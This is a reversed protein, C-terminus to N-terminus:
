PRYPGGLSGYPYLRPRSAWQGGGKHAGRWFNFVALFPTGDSDRAELYFGEYAWGTRDDGTRRKPDLAHQITPVDLAFAAPRRATRVILLPADERPHLIRLEVVRFRYRQELRRLRVDFEHRSLNRFRAHSDEHSRRVIEALWQRRVRRAQARPSVGASVTAPLLVLAGLGLLAAVQRRM